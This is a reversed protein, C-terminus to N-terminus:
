QYEDIVTASRDLGLTQPRDSEPITPKFGAPPMSRQRAHQLYRCFAYHLYFAKRSCAQVPGQPEQLNLSWFKYVIPM